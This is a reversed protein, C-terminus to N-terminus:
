IRNAGKLAFYQGYSLTCNTRRNYDDVEKIASILADTKRSETRHRQAEFLREGHKACSVSCYKIGSKKLKAGCYRCYEGKKQFFSTSDCFPCLLFKEYTNEKEEHKEFYVRAFEFEKRCNNCYYM